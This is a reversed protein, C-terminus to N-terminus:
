RDMEDLDAIPRAARRKVVVTKGPDLRAKKAKEAIKGSTESIPIAQERQPATIRTTAGCAACKRRAMTPLAALPRGCKSCPIVIRDM